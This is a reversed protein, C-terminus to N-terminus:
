TIGKLLEAANLKRSRKLRGATRRFAHTRREVSAAAAMLSVGEAKSFGANNVSVIATVEWHKGSLSSVRGRVHDSTHDGLRRIPQRGANSQELQARVDAAGEEELREMLVRINQRFTKSPNARFFPGSLDITTVFARAM